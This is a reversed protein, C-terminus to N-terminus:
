LFNCDVVVLFPISFCGYQGSMLNFFYYFAYITDLGVATNERPLQM